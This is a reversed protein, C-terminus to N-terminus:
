KSHLLPPLYKFFVKKSDRASPFPIERFFLVTELKRDWTRGDVPFGEKERLNTKLCNLNNRVPNKPKGM